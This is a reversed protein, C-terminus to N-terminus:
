RAGHTGNTRLSPLMEELAAPKMFHADFGASTAMSPTLDPDGTCLVLRLGLGRARLQRAVDLGTMDGLNGDIIAGDLEESVLALAEHGTRAIVVTHGMSLLSVEMMTITAEHDDAVMLRLSSGHARATSSM